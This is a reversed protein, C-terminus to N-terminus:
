DQPRYQLTPTIKCAVQVPHRRDQLNGASGLFEIGAASIQLYRWIAVAEDGTFEDFVALYPKKLTDIQLLVFLTASFIDADYHVLLEGTIDTSSLFGPLTNQFWGSVFSIRRDETKPINGNTNFTGKKSGGEWDEPLGEFSDFGYFRSDENGNYTAFKQISYGEFVGFELVTLVRDQIGGGRKAFIDEWLEERTACHKVTKVASFQERIVSRALVEKLYTSPLAISSLIQVVRQKFKKKIYNTM